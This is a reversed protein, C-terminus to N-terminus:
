GRGLPSSSEVKKHTIRREGFLIRGLRVMTTGATIALNYDESMGMSLEQINLNSLNKKSIEQALEQTKEFVSLTQGHDLGQPPITMLGKIKLNQCQNLQSLDTILEPISWGYKNPDPLIKVQLCINPSCSLEEALRDLRKALKLNDVSHIWQFQQLAKAAKNGQLHGIMHWTINPLDRLQGQKEEAEQVKNEGFDRIGAAYATRIADVSVQKTVAIIRISAPLNSRIKTIRETISEVM